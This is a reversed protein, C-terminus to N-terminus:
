FIVRCAAGALLPDDALMQSQLKLLSPGPDLGYNEGLVSRARHFTDLADARRGSRYLAVMLFAWNKEDSPSEMTEALLDPVLSRHQGIALQAETLDHRANQREGLLKVIVPELARTPPVDSLPPDRWERAAERLLRLAGDYNEHGLAENGRRALTRFRDLDLEGPNLALRYGSSPITQLGQWPMLARRLAWVNTRVAGTSRSFDHDDWLLRTLTDPKLTRNAHLLMTSLLQRLAPRSVFRHEDAERVILPGLVEFQM